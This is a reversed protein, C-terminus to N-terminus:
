HAMNEKENIRDIISAKEILLYILLDNYKEEVQEITPLKKSWRLDAKIDQISIYHKLAFGWLIDERIFGTVKSGEEFAHFPNNNRRYEKGKTILVDKIKELTKDIVFDFKKETM